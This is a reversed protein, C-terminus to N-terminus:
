QIKNLIGGKEYIAILLKAVEKDTEDMDIMGGHGFEPMNKRNKEVADIFYEPTGAKDAATNYEDAWYKARGEQTEPIAGPKNLLFVRAAIVNLVPDNKVQDYTVSPWDIGFEEEIVKYKKPLEPHSSVDQTDEFGSRMVQMINSNKVNAGYSSEALAIETLFDGAGFVEDVKEIASKVVEPPVYSAAAKKTAMMGGEEYAM